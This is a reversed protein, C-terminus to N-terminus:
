LTRTLMEAIQGVSSRDVGDARLGELFQARTGTRREDSFNANWYADAGRMLDRVSQRAVGQVIRQEKSTLVLGISVWYPVFWDASLLMVFRDSNEDAAMQRVVV